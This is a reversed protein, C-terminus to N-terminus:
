DKPFFASSHGKHSILWCISWTTSWLSYLTSPCQFFHRSTSRWMHDANRFPYRTSFLACEWLRGTACIEAGWWHCHQIILVACNVSSRLSHKQWETHHVSFHLYYFTTFLHLYFNLIVHQSFKLQLILYSRCFCKLRPSTPTLNVTVRCQDFYLLNM